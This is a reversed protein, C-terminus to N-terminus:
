VPKWGAVVFACRVKLMLLKCEQKKSPSGCELLKALVPEWTQEALNHVAATRQRKESLRLDSAVRGGTLIEGWLALTKKAWM